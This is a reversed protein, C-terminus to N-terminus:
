RTPEYTKTAISRRVYRRMEALSGVLGATRAQVMVNGLATAESPGAVVPIGCARATMRNLLDNQAGGGIM